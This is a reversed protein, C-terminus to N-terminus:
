SAQSTLSRGDGPETQLSDGLGGDRSETLGSDLTLGRLSILAFAGTILTAGLGAVLFATRPTSLAAIAGGLVFGLAPCLAGMSEVAGMLRGHLDGPTLQQVASIFSAWQVGNGVGGVVAAACAVGLTPAAAYGLYAVGVALTGGTLMPGLSGRVARAFVAAGIVQGIGWIALLLGYGGDGAHLSAKAYLVEVPQISLFFVMAVAQTTLILRLQRAGRLYVWAHRMRARISQAAEEVYPRVQWLLAGCLLFSAADILLATPGGATAVVVGGLAPGVAVGVTFAINLAANAERAALERLREREHDDSALSQAGDAPAVRAAEARLLANAAMGATGDIAVLVLIAPLWFHWLLVALAAATVGEVGYLRSLEGPRQSAEARAVLGPVLLAPLFRAAVFLGAVAIANHTHDYVAVSLAVYGFWNGLQNVTYAVLIRRM